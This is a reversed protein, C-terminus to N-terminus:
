QRWNIITESEVEEGYVVFVNDNGYFTIVQEAEDDSFVAFCVNLSTHKLYYIPAIM